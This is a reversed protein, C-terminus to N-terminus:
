LFPAIWVELEEQTLNDPLLETCKSWLDFFIRRRVLFQNQWIKWDREVRDMVQRSISVATDDAESQLKSLRGQCEKHEQELRAVNVRLEALPVINALSGLEAKLEKERAKLGSLETRM